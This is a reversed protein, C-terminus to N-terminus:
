DGRYYSGFLYDCIPYTINFNYNSMLRRNHHFTHHRRLTSMFPLKSVWSNEDIHYCFHLLEYNLFYAASTLVFLFAVNPSLTYYLLLGVPLAFGGFFFLLMVPPFLVAKFDRSNDFTTRTETFFAHHEVTHRQFPLPLIRTKHHMPGKHGLYETLNAYVFTVPVALWELPLVNNLALICAIMVLLTISVTLGLHRWGSYRASIYKTRFENRFQEVQEASMPM